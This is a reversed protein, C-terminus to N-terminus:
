RAERRIAVAQDSKLAAQYKVIAEFLGEAVAHRGAPQKLLTAEARNTIFGIEALVSPMQAGILVVFPAQKVGLSQVARRKASVTRMLSGQVLTALERSEALKNNLAIAKLLTPLTGMTKASSANERAAV